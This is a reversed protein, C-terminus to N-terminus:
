YLTKGNNYGCMFVGYLTQYKGIDVCFTIVGYKWVWHYYGKIQMSWFPNKMTHTKFIYSQDEFMDTYYTHLQKM